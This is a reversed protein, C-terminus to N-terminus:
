TPNVRDGLDVVNTDFFGNQDINLTNKGGIQTHGGRIAWSAKMPWLPHYIYLCVYIEKVVRSLAEKESLTSIRGNHVFM